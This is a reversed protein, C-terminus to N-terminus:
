FDTNTFSDDAVTSSTNVSPPFSCEHFAKLDNFGGIFDGKYFIFPFTKHNPNAGVELMFDLFGVRNEFLFEDCNIINFAAGKSGLYEKSKVCYYCGSKSYITYENNNNSPAPIDCDHRRFM